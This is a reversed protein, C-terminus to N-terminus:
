KKVWLTLKEAIIYPLDNKQRSSKRLQRITDALPERKLDRSIFRTSTDWSALMFQVEHKGNTPHETFVEWPKGELEAVCLYFVEGRYKVRFRNADLEDEKIPCLEPLENIDLIIVSKADDHSCVPSTANNFFGCSNCNDPLQM